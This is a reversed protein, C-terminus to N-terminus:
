CLRLGLNIVSVSVKNNLIDCFGFKMYSKMIIIDDYAMAAPDIISPKPYHLM